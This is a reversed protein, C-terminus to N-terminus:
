PANTGRVLAAPVPRGWARYFEEAKAFCAAVEPAKPPLQAAVSACGQVLLAEGARFRGRRGLCTGLTAEALGITWHGAPVHLRRIRLGERLLPEAEASRGSSSLSAGLGNLLPALTPDDPGSRERALALAERYLRVAEGFEQRRNALAALNNLRQARYQHRPGLIRCELADAELLLAKAEDFQRLSILVSSLDSLAFALEMRDSTYVRRLMAVGRRAYAEAGRPDGQKHRVQGLAMLADGLREDDGPAARERERVAERFLTEAEPANGRQLFVRGLSVRTETVEPSGAASSERYLALARGFQVEAEALAGLNQQASALLFLVEALKSPEAIASSERLVRAEGALARARDFLGLNLNVRSLTALLDARTAPQDTLEHAIREGARDLVERLPVERGGTATLDAHEFTATLFRAIEEARARERSATDRESRLRMAQAALAVSLSVLALGAASALSVALRHRRVFKAMRYSLSLARAQVPLGALHRELDEALEAASHYREGPAKAIAKAVINDLDGALERAPAGPVRSPPPPTEERLAREVEAHSAGQFHHPLEGTLLLYLLVGLSYVDSATTVPLGQVQEPSAYNPTLVRVWATTIEGSNSTSDDLLKAIGFDLLKPEGDPTVLLNQPKIDRHVILRQHAFHVARAVRIVLELRARISLGHRAAFEDIPLGEVYEMVLYPLGSTTAGADYIRALNPHELSALIRRENEFRAALAPPGTTRRLVKIAVRQEFAGDARRALYVIGSGGRGIEHQVEYAALREGPLLPPASNASGGGLFAGAAEDAALLSAVERKVDDDETATDLFARRENEPLLLAVEFLEEIREFREPM